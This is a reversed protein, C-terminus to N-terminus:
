HVLVHSYLTNMQNRTERGKDVPPPRLESGSDQVRLTPYPSTGCSWTTTPRQRLLKVSEQKQPSLSSYGSPFSVDYTLTRPLTRPDKWGSRGSVRRPARHSVSPTTVMRTSVGSTRVPLPVDPVRVLPTPDWKGRGQDRMDLSGMKRGTGTRRNAQRKYELLSGRTLERLVRDPVPSLLRCPHCVPDVSRDKVSLSMNTNRHGFPEPDKTRRPRNTGVPGPPSSNSM